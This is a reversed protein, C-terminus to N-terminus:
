RRTISASRCPPTIGFSLIGAAKGKCFKECNKHYGSDKLLSFVTRVKPLLQYTHIGHNHGYQGNSHTQLGSYIVARSPGCSATTAFADIFRVGERAIRDICPTKVVENGYCGCDDKNQNDSILLVVNRAATAFPVCTSVLSLCVLLRRIM